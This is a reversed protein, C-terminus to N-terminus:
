NICRSWNLTEGYKIAVLFSISVWEWIQMTAILFMEIKEAIKHDHRLDSSSIDQCLSQCERAELVDSLEKEGNNSCWFSFYNRILEATKEGMEASGTPLNHM